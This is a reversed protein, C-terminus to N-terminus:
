NDKVNPPTIGAADLAEAWARVAAEDELYEGEHEKNIAWLLQELKEANTPEPDPIIEGGAKTFGRLWAQAAIKGWGTRIEELESETITPKGPVPVWGNHAMNADSHYDELSEWPEELHPNVRMAIRGDEHEAFKAQEFDESTYKM